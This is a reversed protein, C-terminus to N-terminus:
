GWGASMATLAFRYLWSKTVGRKGATVQLYLGGGDPYLGPEAIRRVSLATLAM